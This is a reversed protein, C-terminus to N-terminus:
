SAVVMSSPLHAAVRFGVGGPAGYELTGGLLRVRERLGTLGHGSSVDTGARAPSGGRGGDTVEVDVGDDVYAVTVRALQAGSHKLVNTLSEQVIRYATLEIATDLTRVPGTVTLVVDVGAARVGRVLDELEDISQLPAAAPDADDARLLGLMSRTQTLADRSTEAIIELAREAAAVDSRIVHGGVGAQVAILSMSHAVIDHLERAIRLREEVVARAALERATAAEQEAIRLRESQQTRRSRIADGLAWATLLLACAQLLDSTGLDPVDLLALGIFVLLCLVLGTVGNRRRSHAALSYLSFLLLVSLLGIYHGTLTVLLCCTVFVVFAAVPRRRRWALSLGAVLTAAVSFPDAPELRADVSGVDTGLLSAVSLAAATLGIALDLCPSLRRGLMAWAGHDHAQEAERGTM